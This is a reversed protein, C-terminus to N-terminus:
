PEDSFKNREIGNDILYQSHEHVNSSDIVRYEGEKGRWDQKQSPSMTLKLVIFVLAGLVLLWEYLKM